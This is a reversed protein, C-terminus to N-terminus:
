VSLRKLEKWRFRSKGLMLWIARVDGQRASLSFEGSSFVAQDNDLLEWGLVKDALDAVSYNAVKVEGSLTEGGSWCFKETVFLPVVESCSQRWEEPTVLGKSDMFADLVGVYASGQGPYDQLDLLQFGGWPYTRLNMEMDARYLIAAWAGSAKMFDAAQDAMGAAELRRKFVAMNWPKLVGTYKEMEAYNPYVQFQGTEHSIVPVPSLESAKAFDM